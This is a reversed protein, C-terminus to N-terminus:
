VCTMICILRHALAVLGAFGVYPYKWEYLRCRCGIQPSSNATIVPLQVAIKNFTFNMQRHNKWRLDQIGRFRQVADGASIRPTQRGANHGQSQSSRFDSRPGISSVFPVRTRCNDSGFPLERCIGTNLTSFYNLNVM